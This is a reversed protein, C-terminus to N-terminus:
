GISPLSGIAVRQLDTLVGTYYRLNVLTTSHGLIQMAVEQSVGAAKMLTNCTRRLDHLSCDQLGVTRAARKFWKGLAWYFAQPEEFVFENLRQV